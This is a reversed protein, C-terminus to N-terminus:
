AKKLERKKRGFSIIKEIQWLEKGISWASVNEACWVCSQSRGMRLNHYIFTKTAFVFLLTMSFVMFFGFSIRMCILDSHFIWRFHWISLFSFASFFYKTKSRAFRLVFRHILLFIHARPRLSFAVHIYILQTNETWFPRASSLWLGNINFRQWIETKTGMAWGNVNLEVLFCCGFSGIPFIANM